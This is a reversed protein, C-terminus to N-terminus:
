TGPFSLSFLHTKLKQKFTPPLPLCFYVPCLGIVVWLCVEAKQWYVAIENYRENQYGLLILRIGTVFHGNYYHFAGESGCLVFVLIFVFILEFAALLPTIM